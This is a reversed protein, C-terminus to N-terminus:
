QALPLELELNRRNTGAFGVLKKRGPHAIANLPWSRIPIALVPDPLVSAKINGPKTWILACSCVITLM